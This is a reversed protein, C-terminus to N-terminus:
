QILRQYKLWEGILQIAEGFSIRQEYGLIQKIKKNSFRAESSYLDILDENPFVERIPKEGETDSAAQGNRGYKIQNLTERSFRKKIFRLWPVEMMKLRAEPSKLAAKIMYSPLLLPKIIWSKLDNPEALRKRAEIDQRSMERLPPHGGVLDAYAEYIEKWTLNDDDVVFFAEGDASDNEMALFVADILNDIYVLNAAGSGSNPLIAGQLVENAIRGTWYGSYPGYIIPPRLVVIPLNKGNRYRWVVQEAQIKSSRYVDGNKEFSATEDLVLGRPSNGHVAATSFHIVKRVNHTVAAKLINETGTVTVARRAEDDGKTGYALHIVTDCGKVANDVSGEDLL